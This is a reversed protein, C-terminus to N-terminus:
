LAQDTESPNSDLDDNEPDLPASSDGPSQKQKRTSRRIRKAEAKAKRDLERKRKAYTNQNKAINPNRTLPEDNTKAIWTADDRIM